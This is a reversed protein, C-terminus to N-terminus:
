AAARFPVERQPPEWVAGSYPPMAVGRLDMGGHTLIHGGVPAVWSRTLLYALSLIGCAAIPLLVRRTHRFEEYGLHHVWIVLASAALALVGSGLAGATTGTWGLVHFAQWAALVPLASLLVGEAAGYLVAEWALTAAMPGPRARAPRPVGLRNAKVLIAGATIVGSAVAGVIGLVLNRAVPVATGSWALYGWSCGAAVLMLAALYVARPARRVSTLLWPVLFAVVALGGLAVLPAWWAISPDPGPM